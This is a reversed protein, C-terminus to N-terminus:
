VRAFLGLPPGDYRQEALMEMAAGCFNAANVAFVLSLNVKQAKFCSGGLAALLSM